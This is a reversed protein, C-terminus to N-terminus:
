DLFRFMRIAKGGTVHSIESLVLQVNSFLHAKHKQVPHLLDAHFVPQFSIGVMETKVINVLEYLFIPIDLFTTQLQNANHSYLNCGFDLYNIITKNINTPLKDELCQYFILSWREYMCRKKFWCKHTITVRIAIIYIADM